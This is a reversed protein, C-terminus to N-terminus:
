RVKNQFVVNDQWTTTEKRGNSPNAEETGGIVRCYEGSSDTRRRTMRWGRHVRIRSTEKWKASQFYYKMSKNPVYCNRGCMEVAYWMIARNKHLTYNIENLQLSQKWKWNLYLSKDRALMSDTGNTCGQAWDTISIASSRDCQNLPHHPQHSCDFFNIHFLARLTSELYLM